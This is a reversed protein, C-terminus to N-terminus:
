AGHEAILEQIKKILARTEADTGKSEDLINTWLRTFYACGYFIVEAWESDNLRMQEASKPKVLWVKVADILMRELDTSAKIGATDDEAAL